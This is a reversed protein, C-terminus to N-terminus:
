VFISILLYSGMGYISLLGLSMFIGRARTRRSLYSYTYGLRAIPFGIIWCQAALPTPNVWILIISLFMFYITNETTNRHTNHHREVESVGEISADNPDQGKAEWEEPSAAMRYRVRTLETANMLWTHNVILLVGAIIAVRMSEHAPLEVDLPNVGFVFLNLAVSIFVIAIPYFKVITATLRQNDDLKM